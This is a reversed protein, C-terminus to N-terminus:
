KGGFCEWCVKIKLATSITWIVRPVNCLCLARQLSWLSNQLFDASGYMVSRACVNAERGDGTSNCIPLHSLVDRHTCCLYSGRIGGSSICFTRLLFSINMLVLVDFERGSGPAAVWSPGLLAQIKCRNPTKVFAINEWRQLLSSVKCPSVRFLLTWRRYEWCVVLLLDPDGSCSKSVPFYAKMM